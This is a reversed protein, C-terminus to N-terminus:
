NYGHVVMYKAGSAEAAEIGTESDEFIITQDQIVGAIEMAKLFADPAPKTHEVDEKTLIFDFEDKVEFRELIDNTNDRSATTVLAIQYSSRILKIMSFLHENKVAQDLYSKYARMKVSHVRQMDAVSIGPVIRPLFVKYNNGNCFHCYFEYDINCIFGCETLASCYARYNVDKTDFLTGDLDFIALKTREEM